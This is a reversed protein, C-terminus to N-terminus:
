CNEGTSIIYNLTIFPPMNEHPNGGGESSTQEPLLSPIAVPVLGIPVDHLGPFTGGYDHDHNPMHTGALTVTAQGGTDGLSAGGGLGLPFRERLDPINFNQGSGGYVYGIVDFLLSYDDTDYSAGDCILTGEPATAGAFSSIVGANVVCRRFSNIVALYEESIEEDTLPSEGEWQWGQLLLSIAGWLQTRWEASDPMCVEYRSLAAAEQPRLFSM